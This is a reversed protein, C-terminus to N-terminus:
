IRSKEIMTTIEPIAEDLGLYGSNRFRVIGNKDIVLKTPLGTINFSEAVPSKGTKDKLDMLVQFTYKKSDILKKADEAATKSKEYSHIFMFVVSSDRKYYNMAQQMGPFSGVCPQCWTAWFDLVITKGRLSKLSVKRGDLSQLEFDPAVENVAFKAVKNEIRSKQEANISDMLFTFRNENGDMKIFLDRIGNTFESGFYVPKRLQRTAEQLAEVTKGSRILALVYTEDQQQSRRQKLNGSPPKLFTVAEKYKAQKFLIVGYRSILMYKDEPAFTVELTDAVKTGGPLDRVISRIIREADELKGKNILVDLIQLVSSSKSQTDNIQSILLKSKKLDGTEAFSVAAINRSADLLSNNFGEEPKQEMLKLFFHMREPDVESKLANYLGSFTTDSPLSQASASNALCAIFGLFTLISNVIYKTM